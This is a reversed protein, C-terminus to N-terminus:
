TGAAAESGAHVRFLFPVAMNYLTHAIISPWVSGTSILGVALIAGMAATALVGTLGQTFHVAGFVLSAAAVGLWIDGGLERTAFPVLMSRFMIEECIGATPSVLLAWTATERTTEPQLLMRVRTPPIRMAQQIASAAWAVVGLALLLGASWYILAHPEHPAFLSLDLLYREVPQGRLIVGVLWYPSTLILLFIWLQLASALYLGMREEGRDRYRTYVRGIWWFTLGVVAGVALPLGFTDVFRGAETLFNTAGNV